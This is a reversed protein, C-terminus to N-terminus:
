SLGQRRAAFLDSSAPSAARRPGAAPSGTSARIASMAQRAADVNTAKSDNVFRVGGIAGVTEMRHALGPFTM